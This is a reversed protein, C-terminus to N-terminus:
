NKAKRMLSDKGRVMFTIDGAKTTPDLMAGGNDTMDPGISYLVLGHDTKKMRLPKGDFPDLPVAPICEPALEDVKGPLRGHSAQFRYTALALRMVSRQADARAIYKPCSSLAPCLLRTLMGSEHKVMEEFGEWDSKSQFYPQSAWRQCQRTLRNYAAQDDAFLFLRYLSAVFPTQPRSDQEGWSNGLQPLAIKGSAVDYFVAQGFAEEMRLARQFVRQYSLSGDLGVAKLDDASPPTSALVAELTSLGTTDIVVSVLLSVLIPDSSTHEAMVFIARCDGLAGRLDGDAAKCRADLSLLRAGDRIGQLEPLLMDFSPRGYDRDFHCGPKNGAERLLVLTAAQRTLFGRLEADKPDFGTAGPNLWNCWKEEYAKPWRVSVGATPFAQRYVLAANDRDPLRPPAISVALAGAEARLTGLQQQIALDLNWATMLHLALVVALALALAGKPWNECKPGSLGAEGRRLGAIAIWGAGVAYSATLAVLPYFWCTALNTTSKFYGVLGTLGRM